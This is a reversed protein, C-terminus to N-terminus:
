SLNCTAGSQLGAYPRGDRPSQTMEPAKGASFRQAINPGGRQPQIARKLHVFQSARNFFRNQKLKSTFPAAPSSLCRVKSSPGYTQAARSSLLNQTFLASPLNLSYGAEGVICRM